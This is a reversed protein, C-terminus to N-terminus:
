RVKCQRALLSGTSTQRVNICFTQNGAPNGASLLRGRCSEDGCSKQQSDIKTGNRRLETYVSVNCPAVNSWVTGRARMAGSSDLSLRLVSGDIEDPHCILPVADEIGGSEDGEEDLGEDEDLGDESEDWIIDEDTADAACAGAALASAALGAVMMVVRLNNRAVSIM